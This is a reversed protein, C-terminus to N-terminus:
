FIANLGLGLWNGRQVAGIGSQFYYLNVTSGEGADGADGSRWTYHLMLKLRKKNLYWNLGADFTYDRGSFAGVSLADDQELAATGGEFHMFM